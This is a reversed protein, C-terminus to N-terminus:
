EKISGALAGAIFKQAMLAFVIIVPITALTSSSMIRGYDIRTQGRSSSIFLPLTVMEESKLAILPWLFDNWSQLFAIIIYTVLAPKVVPLLIKYYIAFESCGDIRAADLLDNPVGLMNQRMMFIGMPSAVFPFIVSPYANMWGFKSILFFLPILTVPLPIMLSGLIIFFLTNKGPFRFKALAYGGLSCIFTSIITYVSAVFLSNFFNRLFYTEQFLKKYHGLYLEKPIMTPPYAFIEGSPKFSSIVMWYFPILVLLVGVTLVIYIITRTLKSTVKPNLM